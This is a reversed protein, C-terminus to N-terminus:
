IRAPSRSTSSRGRPACPAHSARTLNWRTIGTEGHFTMGAKYETDSPNGWFPFCLNHGILGAM